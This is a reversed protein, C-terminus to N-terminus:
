IHFPFCFLLDSHHVTLPPVRSNSAKSTSSSPWLGVVTHPIGLGPAPISVSSHPLVVLWVFLPKPPPSAAPGKRLVESRLKWEPFM